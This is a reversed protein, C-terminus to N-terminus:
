GEPNSAPKKGNVDTVVPSKADFESAKTTSGVMASFPKILAGSCRTEILYKMQNFDIDFDDFMNVAGGKDAGVNYDNLDVIIFQPDIVTNREFIEDPVEVIKSVRLKTALQASSEYLMHGIGDEILLMECLVSQKVFMTKNGSGRYNKYGRIISKIAAKATTEDVIKDVKIKYAYLDDDSVIPRINIEQIKADDVASRGDGVLIAGAIEEDLMIRMEGKLWALVDFDTIDIIDDRDMKQKKYITQPNTTRKLLTIVEEVKKKGKVYGRARAEDATINAFTSKIRSFPTHHTGNLVTAVWETERKIFDPSDTITKADPFLIEIDKIGYDADAHAMITDRVSFGRKAETLATSMLDMMDDHSLIMGDDDRTDQEFVNHRMENGGKFGSHEVDNDKDDEDEYQAVITAIAGAVAKQQLPTMSSIIEKITKPSMMEEDDNDDNDDNDDSHEFDDDEDEYQAVITAIAGAVAKQQLPTMSSIIEKITKPSMMENDSHELDEDDDEFEDEDEYDDDDEFEDEDEYDDDYEDEDSHYLLIDSDDLFVQAVDEREGLLGDSHEIIPNDIFAGPNAGALVLSVEKIDGHLVDRSPTQQLHNAWISLSTVDGHQVAHKATEAAASDNFECYAYVGEKRNELVAHGLVKAPDDHDHMWCLPVTKGDNQSFANARITRGDSCKLDNRTAWGSFDFKGKM